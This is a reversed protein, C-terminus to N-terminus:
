PYKEGVNEAGIHEWPGELSGNVVEGCLTSPGHIHNVRDGYDRECVYSDCNEKFPGVNHWFSRTSLFPRTAFAFSTHQQTHFRLWWGIDQQFKIECDINPHPPGLRIYQYGVERILKVAQSLDLPQTLKWDDTTYLWLDAPDLSHLIARNLSGGIGVREGGVATIVNQHEPLMFERKALAILALVHPQDAPGDNAIVYKIPEPADLNAMLSYLSELAYEGRKSEPTPQYCTMIVKITM